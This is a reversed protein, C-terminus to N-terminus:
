AALEGCKQLSQVVAIEADVADEYDRFLITSLFGRTGRYDHYNVGAAHFLDTGWTGQGKNIRGDVREDNFRIYWHQSKADWVILTVRKIEAHGFGRLDVGKGRKHQLGFLSGDPRITIVQQPM